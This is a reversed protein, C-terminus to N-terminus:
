ASRRRRMVLGGAALLLASAPEPVPTFDVSANSLTWGDNAIFFSGNNTAAYVATVTDANVGIILRTLSAEASAATAAYTAAFEYDYSPTAGANDIGKLTLVYTANITNGTAFKQDAGFIVEGGGVVSGGSFVASNGRRTIRADGASGTGYGTNIKLVEGTGNSPTGIESFQFGSYFSNNQNTNTTISGYTQTFTLTDGVRTFTAPTALEAGIGVDVRSEDNAAYAVTGGAAGNLTVAADTDAGLRVFDDLAVPAAAAPLATTAALLLASTTLVKKM